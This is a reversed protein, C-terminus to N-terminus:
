NTGNPALCLDPATGSMTIVINIQLDLGSRYKTVWVLMDTYGAMVALEEFNDTYRYVDHSGKFYSHSELKALAQDQENEEVFWLHFESKFGAQTPFLFLVTSLYRETWRAAVDKLMFSISFWVLKEQSINGDVMFAEPVLRYYILVSHLFM